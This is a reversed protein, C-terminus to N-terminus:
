TTSSMAKGKSPQGHKLFGAEFGQQLLTRLAWDRGM